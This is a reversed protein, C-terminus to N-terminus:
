KTPIRLKMGIKLSDQDDMVSRNLKVIEDLRKKSGLQKQAILGLTDGKQVVYERPGGAAGATAADNAPTNEPKSVADRAAGLAAAAVSGSGPAVMAGDSLRARGLLVDKPPIRLTVGERLSMNAGLKGTNYEALKKALSGDNYYTKALAYMTEGRKVPHATVSGTSLPLGGGDATPNTAAINTGAPGSPDPPPSISPVNLVSVGPAYVIPGGAPIATASGSRAPPIASGQLGPAGAGNPNVGGGFAASPDTMSIRMTPRGAPQTLDPSPNLPATAELANGAPPAIVVAEPNTVGLADRPTTAVETGPATANAKSFHDGVLVGVVLLVAFAIILALKHERTVDFRGQVPHPHTHHAAAQPRSTSNAASPAASPANDGDAAGDDFARDADHGIASPRAPSSASDTTEEIDPGEVMAPLLLQAQDM